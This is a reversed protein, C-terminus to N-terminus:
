GTSALPSNVKVIESDAGYARWPIAQAAFTAIAGRQFVLCHTSGGFQFHGVQDGKKVHQGVSLPRGNELKLVCSSVEEMGVPILCMLGIDHNDAETFILARTAVHAIYSQSNNPGAEDFGM